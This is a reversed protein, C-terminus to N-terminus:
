ERAKGKKFGRRGRSPRKRPAGKRPPKKPPVLMILEAGPSLKEIVGRERVRVVIFPSNIPGIVDSVYGVEGDGALLVQFRGRPPNRRVKESPEVVVHGTKVIAKIFGLPVRKYEVRRRGVGAKSTRRQRRRDAM